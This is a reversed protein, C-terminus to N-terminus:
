ETTWKPEENREEEKSKYGEALRKSYAFFADINLKKNVILEDLWYKRVESEGIDYEDRVPRQNICINKYDKKNWKWNVLALFSTIYQEKTIESNWSSFMSDLRNDKFIAAWLPELANAISSEWDYRYERQSISSELNELADERSTNNTM